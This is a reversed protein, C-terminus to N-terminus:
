EVTHNRMLELLKAFNKAVYLMARGRQQLQAEHSYQIESPLKYSVLGLPAMLPNAKRRNSYHLHAVQQRYSRKKIPDYTDGRM